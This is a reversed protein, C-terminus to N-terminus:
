QWFTNKFVVATLHTKLTSTLSFIPTLVLKALFFFFISVSHAPLQSLGSQYEAMRKTTWQIYVQSSSTLTRASLRCTKNRQKEVTLQILQFWILAEKSSRRSILDVVKVSSVFVSWVDNVSISSM